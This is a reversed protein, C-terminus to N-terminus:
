SKVDSNQVSSKGPVEWGDRLLGAAWMKEDAGPRLFCINGAPRKQFRWCEPPHSWRHSRQDGKLHYAPYLPLYWKLCIFDLWGVPWLLAAVRHKDSAKKRGFGGEAAWVTAASDVKLNPHCWWPETSFPHIELIAKRENVRGSVLLEGRFISPRFIFAKRKPHSGPM